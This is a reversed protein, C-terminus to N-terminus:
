PVLVLKGISQGSEIRRQADAARELPFTEVPLPRLEGSQFRQVLWQMGERLRPAESQLFSLNAALVSRNSQTMDLPNFRPTRLWHWALRLWNLRGDHPLMSHFGYIVLRGTPALHAYSQRLTAVGNADFVAHYGDPAVRKAAAWLDDRSKDIVHEAGMRSCHEVKHTSGVVGTVECGALRGIQVLASGVGGAASHVMWREGAHPHLQQHVMFWATLFVTPLSAGEAMSLHEPLAFVQEADLCLSSSYGNFLTLGIVADGVAWATVGEGVADIRGAVEFGPTIPYGHLQKASAYLGMRIIGDAYNVGCAEVAVRVQGPGPQPDACAEIRLADYGGPQQIRIRKM